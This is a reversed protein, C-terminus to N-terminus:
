PTNVTNLRRKRRRERDWVRRRANVCIRCKRHAGGPGSPITNEPTYEHGQPCHTKRANVGPLGMGRLMNERQTVPELHSPRVCARVRCLHDLQFGEPIPGVEQEYAWRTAQAVTRSGVYFRGYGASSLNATWLWCPGLFPAWKPLPGNRDVHEWFLQPRSKRKDAPDGTRYWRNYHSKCFGRVWPPPNTCGPYSCTSKDM